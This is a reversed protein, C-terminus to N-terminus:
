SIELAVTAKWWMGVPRAAGLERDLEDDVIFFAALV